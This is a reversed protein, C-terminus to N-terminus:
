FAGWALCNGVQVNDVHLQTWPGAGPATRPNGIYLSQPMLSSDASGIRHGDVFLTYHQGQELTLMATHWATDGPVGEWLVQGGLLSADFRRIGRAPDVVHHISLIDEWGAPLGLEEAVREGAYPVSNLAITTGHASINSYRFRVEMVWDSGLQEFADNRWLVPFRDTYPTTWLDLTSAWVRRQGEAMDATWGGLLPDEFAESLLPVADVCTRPFVKLILPLYHYRIRPTPTLTITPTPTITPTQTRTPTLTPTPTPTPLAYQVRLYPRVGSDLHESARIFYEGGVSVNTQQLLLGRNNGSDGVWGQVAGTVDWTYWEERQYLAQPDLPVNSRDTPVGACGQVTWLSAATARQWTAEAENWPRNVVYAANISAEPPRNGYGWVYLGLTAQQVIADSPISSVDFRILTAVRGRMGLFLDDEAFNRTPNEQSIRTDVCGSYGAVGQRFTVDFTVPTAVAALAGPVAAAQSSLGPPEGLPGVTLAAALGLVILVLQIWSLPRKGM